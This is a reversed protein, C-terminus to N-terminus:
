RAVGVLQTVALGRSTQTEERVIGLRPSIWRRVDGHTYVLCLENSAGLRVRDVEDHVLGLGAPLELDKALPTPAVGVAEGSARLDVLPARSGVIKMREGAREVGILGEGLATTGDAAFRTRRLRRVDGEGSEVVDRWWEVRGSPDVDVRWSTHGAELALVGRDLALQWQLALQNRWSSVEGLQAPLTNATRTLEPDLAREPGYWRRAADLLQLDRSLEKSLRAGGAGVREAWAGLPEVEGLRRADLSGNVVARERLGSVFRAALEDLHRCAFRADHRFALEPDDLAPRAQLAFWDREHALEREAAASRVRDRLGALASQVREVRSGAATDALRLEIWDSAEELFAALQESAHELASRADAAAELDLQADDGGTARTAEFRDLRESARALSTVFDTRWGFLGELEAALARRHAQAGERAALLELASDLGRAARVSRESLGVAAALRAQVSELQAREDELAQRLRAVAGREDALQSRLLEQVGNSDRRLAGESRLSAELEDLQANLAVEGVALEARLREIRALADLQASEFRLRQDAATKYAAAAENRNRLALAGVVVLALVAVALVGRRWRARLPGSSGPSFSSMRPLLAEVARRAAVASAPSADGGARLVHALSRAAEHLAGEERTAGLMTALLEGVGRLDSSTGRAHAPRTPSAALLKARVGFPNEDRKPVNNELWVRRASLEGADLGAAHLAELGRLIQRAIELAHVPHLAGERTLRSELAEGETHEHLAFVRGDGLRGIEIGRALHPSDVRAVARLEAEIADREAATPTRTSAVIELRLPSPDRETDRVLFVPGAPGDGLDRQLEFRTPLDWGGEGEGSEVRWVTEYSGDAKPAPTPVPEREPRQHSDNPESM